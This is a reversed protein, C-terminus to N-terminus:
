TRRYDKFQNGPLYIVATTNVPIEAKLTFSNSEKRRANSIMRYPSLHLATAFTVDVVLQLDIIIKKFAVADEASIIGALGSYFWEMLHGLM